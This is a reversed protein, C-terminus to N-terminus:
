HAFAQQLDIHLPRSCTLMMPLIALRRIKIKGYFCRLFMIIGGGIKDIVVKNTGNFSNSFNM